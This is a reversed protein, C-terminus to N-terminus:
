NDGSELHTAEPPSSPLKLIHSIDEPFVNDFKVIGPCDIVQM